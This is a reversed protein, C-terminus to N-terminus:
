KTGVPTARDGSPIARHEGPTVKNGRPHDQGGGWLHGHGGGLPLQTGRPTTRDGLPTGM